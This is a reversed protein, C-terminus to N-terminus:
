EALAKRLVDAAAEWTMARATSIVHSPVGEEGCMSSVSGEAKQKAATERWRAAAEGMEHAVDVVLSSDAM